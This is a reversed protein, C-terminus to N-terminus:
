FVPLSGAPLCLFFVFVFDEIGDVMNTVHSVAYDNRIM